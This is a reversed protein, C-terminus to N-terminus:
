FSSFGDSFHVKQVQIHLVASPHTSLVSVIEGSTNHLAQSYKHGRPFDLQLPPPPNTIMEGRDFILEQEEDVSAYKSGLKFPSYNSYSRRRNM